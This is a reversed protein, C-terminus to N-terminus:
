RRSARAAACGRSRQLYRSQAPLFSPLDFYPQSGPADTVYVTGLRRRQAEELVARMAAQGPVGYVISAFRKASVAAAWSPARFSWFDGYSGEFPIVVNALRMYERTVWGNMVILHEDYTRIHASVATFYGLNEDRRGPSVNDVFIGDVPYWRQWRDIDRRVQAIRRAGFRTYVYGIVRVGAARAAAFMEVMRPNRSPGPGNGLNAIAITGAPPAATLDSWMKILDGYMPVIVDPCAAPSPPTAAVAAASAPAAASGILAALLM